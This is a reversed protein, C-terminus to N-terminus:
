ESNEDGILLMADGYSLFKFDNELAMSYLEIVKERGKGPCFQEIYAAVMLLLSTGPLHFNTLFMSSSKFQYGPEIFLDTIGSRSKFGSGNYVTELTRMVTTGCVCVREAKNLIQASRSSISYKEEEPPKNGPRFTGPGIHLTVPAFEIGKGEIESILNQTFHLCSTPSAVSGAHESFVTQYTHYDSGVVERRSNIYPPLPIYGYDLINEPCQVIFRGDDYKRCIKVMCSEEKKSFIEIEMNERLRAPRGLAKWGDPTKETLLFEVTGGTKKKGMIRATIVRS